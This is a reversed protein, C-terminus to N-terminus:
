PIIIGAHGLEPRFIVIQTLKVLKKLCIVVRQPLYSLVNRLFSKYVKRVEVSFIHITFQTDVAASLYSILLALTLM